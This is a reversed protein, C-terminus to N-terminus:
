TTFKLHVQDLDHSWSLQFSFQSCVCYLVAHEITYIGLDKFTQLHYTSGLCM